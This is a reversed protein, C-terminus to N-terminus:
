RWTRGPLGSGTMRSLGHGSHDPPGTIYAQKLIIERHYVVSADGLPPLVLQTIYIRTTPYKSLLADIGFSRGRTRPAHHRSSNSAPSSESTANPVPHQATYAWPPLSTKLFPLPFRYFFKWIKFPKFLINGAHCWRFSSPKPFPPRGRKPTM